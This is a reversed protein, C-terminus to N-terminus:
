YHHYYNNNNDRPCAFAFVGDRPHTPLASGATTAHIHVKERTCYPLCRPLGCRTCSPPPNLWNRWSDVAHIRANVPPRPLFTVSSWRLLLDIPVRQTNNNNIADYSCVRARTLAFSKRRWPNEAMLCPKEIWGFTLHFEFVNSSRNSRSRRSRSDFKM